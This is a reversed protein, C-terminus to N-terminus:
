GSIIRELVLIAAVRTCFAPKFSSAGLSPMYDLNEREKERSWTNFDYSRTQWFQMPTSQQETSRAGNNQQPKVTQAPHEISSLNREACASGNAGCFRGPYVPLSHPLFLRGAGNSIVTHRPRSSRPNAWGQPKQLPYAREKSRRKEPCARSEANRLPQCRDQAAGARGDRLLLSQEM